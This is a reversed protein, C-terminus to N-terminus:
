GPNDGYGLVRYTKIHVWREIVNGGFVWVWEGCCREGRKGCGFVGRKRRVKVDGLGGEEVFVVRG